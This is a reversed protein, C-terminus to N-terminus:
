AEYLLGPVTVCTATMSQLSASAITSLSTVIKWAGYPLPKGANRVQVTPALGDGASCGPPGGLHPGERAIAAANYDPTESAISPFQDSPSGTVRKPLGIM